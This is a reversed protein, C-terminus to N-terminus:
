ESEIDKRLDQITNYSRFDRKAIIQELKKIYEPRVEHMDSSIADVEEEIVAIKQKLFSLDQHINRLLKAELMSPRIKRFPAEM